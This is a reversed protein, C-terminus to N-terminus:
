GNAENAGELTAGALTGSFDVLDGTLTIRNTFNDNPPPTQALGARSVLLCVCGIFVGGYKKM